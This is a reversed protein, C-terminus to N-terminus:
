GIQRPGEVARWRPQASRLAARLRGGTDPCGEIAGLPACVSAGDAIAVHREIREQGQRSVGTRDAIERRAV